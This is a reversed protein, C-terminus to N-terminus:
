GFLFGLLAAVIGEFPGAEAPAAAAVEMPRREQAVQAVEDVTTEIGVYIGLADDAALLAPQEARCAHITGVDRQGTM